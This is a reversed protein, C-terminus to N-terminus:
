NTNVSAQARALLQLYQEHSSQLGTMVSPTSCHAFTQNYQHRDQRKASRRPVGRLRGIQRDETTAIRHLSQRELEGIDMRIQESRDGVQADALGEFVTTGTRYFGYVHERCRGACRHVGHGHRHALAAHARLDVLLDLGRTIVLIRDRGALRGAQQLARVLM